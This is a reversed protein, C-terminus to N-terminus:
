KINCDFRKINELGILESKINRMWFYPISFNDMNGLLGAWLSFSSNSAILGKHNLMRKFVDLPDGGKDIIINKHLSEFKKIDILNISDSFITIGDYDNEKIIIKAEKYLYEDLIIGHMSHKKLLYDGRRFHIALLNLRTTILLPNIKKKMLSLASNDLDSSNVKQYYGSHIFKNPWYNIVFPNDGPLRNSQQRIFIKEHFKAYIYILISFLSDSKKFDIFLKPYLRELIFSRDKRKSFFYNTLNLSVKKNLKLYIKYAYFLCFLQNGLGGKIVVENDNM